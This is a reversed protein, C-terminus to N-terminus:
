PTSGTLQLLIDEVERVKRASEAAFAQGAMGSYDLVSV